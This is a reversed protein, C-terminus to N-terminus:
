RKLVGLSFCVIIVFDLVGATPDVWAWEAFFIEQGALLGKVAFVMFAASVYTLRANKTRRYAMVTVVFLAAALIGSGLNLLKDAEFRGSDVDAAEEVAAVVSLFALLMIVGSYVFRALRM